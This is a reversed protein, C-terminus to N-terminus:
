PGTGLKGQNFVGAVEAQTSKAIVTGAANKIKRVTATSESDNVLAEYMYAIMSAIDETNPPAGQAREAITGHAAEDIAGAAFSGSQIGGTAMVVAVGKVTDRISWTITRDSGALKKLTFDWGHMLTVEPGIWLPSAQAGTLIWVQALRQTDAARAKEYLAIQYVDGAALNIADVVPQYKGPTTDADPGATDTTMSWETGDVAQTGSYLELAM